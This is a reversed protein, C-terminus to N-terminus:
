ERIIRKEMCSFFCFMQGKKLLGRCNKLQFISLCLVNHDRREEARIKKSSYVYEIYM